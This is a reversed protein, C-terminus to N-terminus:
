KSLSHMLRVAPFFDQAVAQYWVYCMHIPHWFIDGEFKYTHNSVIYRSSLVVVHVLTVFSCLKSFLSPFDSSKSHVEFNLLFSSFPHSLFHFAFCFAFNWFTFYIYIYFALHVSFWFLFPLIVSSFPDSSALYYTLSCQSLICSSHILSFFSLQLM